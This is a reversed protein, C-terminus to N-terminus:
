ITINKFDYIYKVLNLNYRDNNLYTMKAIFDSIYEFFIVFPSSNELSYIHYYFYAYDGSKM